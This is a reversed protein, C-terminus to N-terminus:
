SSGALREVPQARLQAVGATRRRARQHAYLQQPLVRLPQRLVGRARHFQARVADIEVAAARGLQHVAAAAPRRQELDPTSRRPALAIRAATGAWRGTVTFTRM